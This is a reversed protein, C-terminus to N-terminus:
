SKRIIGLILCIENYPDWYFPITYGEHEVDKVTDDDFFISNKYKHAKTPINMLVTDLYLKYKKADQFDTRIKEELINKLQEEFLATNLIHM